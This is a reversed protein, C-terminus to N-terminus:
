YKIRPDLFLYAIDVILNAVVIIAATILTYLMIFNTDNQSIAM